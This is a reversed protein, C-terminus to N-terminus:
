SITPISHVRSDFPPPTVKEVDKFPLLADYGTYAVKEIQKWAKASVTVIALSPECSFAKQTGLLGLM